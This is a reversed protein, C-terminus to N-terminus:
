WISTQISSLLYVDPNLGWIWMTRIMEKFHAYFQCGAASRPTPQTSHSFKVARDPGAAACQILPHIDEKLNCICKLGKSALNKLPFM